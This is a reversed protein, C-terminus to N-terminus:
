SDIVSKVADVFKDLRDTPFDSIVDKGEATFKITTLMGASRSKIFLTGEGKETYTDDIREKENDAVSHIAGGDIRIKFEFDPYKTSLTGVYEKFDALNNEM